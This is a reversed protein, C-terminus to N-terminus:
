IPNQPDNRLQIGNQGSIAKTPTNSKDFTESVKVGNMLPFVFHFHSNPTQVLGTDNEDEYDKRGNKKWGVLEKLIKM